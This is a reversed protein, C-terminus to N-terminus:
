EFVFKYNTVFSKYSCEKIRVGQVLQMSVKQLLEQIVQPQKRPHYDQFGVAPDVLENLFLARAEESRTINNPLKFEQNAILAEAYRSCFLGCDHGNTQRVPDKVLFFHWGAQQCSKGLLTLCAKSAVYYKRAADQYRASDIKTKLSDIFYIQKKELLIVSLFWHDNSHTPFLLVSTMEKIKNLLDEFLIKYVIRGDELKQNGLCADVALMKDTKGRNKFFVKQIFTSIVDSNLYRLPNNLVNDELDAILEPTLYSTYENQVLQLMPEPECKENDSSDKDDQSEGPLCGEETLFCGLDDQTDTEAKCESRKLFVFTQRKLEFYKNVNSPTIEAEAKLRTTTTESTTVFINQNSISNGHCVDLVGTLDAFKHVSPNNSCYYVLTYIRENEVSASQFRTADTPHVLRFCKKVVDNVYQFAPQKSTAKQQGFTENKQGVKSYSYYLQGPKPNRTNSYNNWHLNDIIKSIKSSNCVLYATNLDPTGTIEQPVQLINEYANRLIEQVERPSLVPSVKVIYNPNM